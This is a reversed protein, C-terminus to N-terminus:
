FAALMLGATVFMLMMTAIGALLDKYDLYGRM